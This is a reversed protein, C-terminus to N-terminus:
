AKGLRRAVRSALPVRRIIEAFLVGGDICTTAGQSLARVAGTRKIVGGARISTAHHLTHAWGTFSSRNLHVYCSTLSLSSM